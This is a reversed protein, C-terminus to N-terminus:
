AKPSHSSAPTGPSFWQICLSFMCVGHLFVGPWSDFKPGEEQQLAVTQDQNEETWAVTKMQKIKFFVLPLQRQASCCMAPQLLIFVSLVSSSTDTLLPSLNLM